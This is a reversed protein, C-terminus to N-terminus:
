TPLVADVTKLCSPLGGSVLSEQGRVPIFRMDNMSLLDMGLQSSYTLESPM